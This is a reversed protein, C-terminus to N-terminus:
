TLILREPIPVQKWSGDQQIETLYARGFGVEGMAFDPIVLSLFGPTHIIPYDDDTKSHFAAKPHTHVQIRVGMNERAIALWLTTLWQDDVSFGAGLARHKPHVVKTIESVSRWPSLWLAQCEHHGRGCERFLAFTADLISKPLRYGTM